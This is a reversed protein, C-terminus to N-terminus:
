VALAKKRKRAALNHTSVPVHMELGVLKVTGGHAEYDHQFHHLNEM